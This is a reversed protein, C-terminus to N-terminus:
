FVKPAPAVAVPGVTFQGAEFGLALEVNADGRTRAVVTAAGIANPDAQEIRGLASLAQLPRNMMVDLSGRLRGDSGVSLVGGTNRARLDGAQLTASAVRMRGGARTWNRVAEAWSRGRLAGIQSVRSDWVFNTPQSGSVFAMLGAPRPLGGRVRFLLAAEDGEPAPRLHFEAREAGALLFPEAGELPVFRLDAGEVSIRPPVSNVGSLSARLLRGQVHLPGAEPRLVVVGDPASAVWRTLRYANAQAELRPARVAWGSPSAVRAQQLVLKLRFPYGEVRRSAWEIRRGQAEQAAVAQDLADLLRDRAIWWYASWAVLGIAALGSPILLWNRTPRGGAEAM